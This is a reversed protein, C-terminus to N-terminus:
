INFVEKKNHKLKQMLECKEKLLINVDATQKTTLMNEGKEYFECIRDNGRSIKIANLVKQQQEHKLGQM